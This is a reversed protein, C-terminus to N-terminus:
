WWDSRCYLSSLPWIRCYSRNYCSVSRHRGLSRCINAETGQESKRETHIEPTSVATLIILKFPVHRNDPEEFVITAPVSDQVVNEVLDVTKENAIMAAM